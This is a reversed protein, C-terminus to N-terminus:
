GNGVGMRQLHAAVRESLADVEAALQPLPAAYREALERIRGTLRHSVRELEGEIRRRLDALWKDDVVLTKVEDPTLSKYKQLLLAALTQQADRVAKKAEAERDYLELYQELVAQEDAFDPDGKIEKLRKNVNTKTLNGKDTRAEELLGEEGSQAEELEDRRRAIEERAAELQEMGAQEAAFYRAVLLAKPILDSDWEGKKVQRPQPLWGDEVIMYCDDRMTEQWYSLLHQYIDYKDIL